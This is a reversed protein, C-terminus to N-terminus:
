PVYELFCEELYLQGQVWHNYRSVHVMWSPSGTGEDGFRFELAKIRYLETSWQSLFINFTIGSILVQECVDQLLMNIIVM